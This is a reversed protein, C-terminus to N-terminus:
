PTARPPATRKPRPAQLGMQRVALDRLIEESGGGIAMVKVERYIREIPCGRLYGAGGMIQRADSACFERAKTTFVKAKSIKAVPMDDENVAWCLQNLLADVADIRMSMDAIKHRIVQHRILPKGFTERSQAWDIADALCTKMMGLSAAILTVRELNFNQMIALFGRNEQGMLASAPLRRGDFHLSAQDSAWWGMKRSLPTRAFGPAGWEVIFLSIGALGPGGTRAGVVFYDSKMAGTIFTKEDSLLWDKGDRVARTRMAAVDSGGSPETIALSSGKRGASVDPLVRARIEASALAPDPRALDDAREAGSVRGRRRM